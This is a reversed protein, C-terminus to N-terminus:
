TFLWCSCGGSGVPRALPARRIARATASRSCPLRRSLAVVTVTDATLKSATPPTAAIRGPVACVVEPLVPFLEDALEPEDPVEPEPVEPEDLLM